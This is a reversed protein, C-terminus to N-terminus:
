GYLVRVNFKADTVGANTVFFKTVNATYPCATAYDSGWVIGATKKVEFIDNVGSVATGSNSNTKVTIDQDSAIVMSKISAFPFTIDVELDTAGAAIVRAVGADEGGTYTGTQTSVSAGNGTYTISIKDTFTNVVAM